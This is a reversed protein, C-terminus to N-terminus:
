IIQEETAFFRIRKDSPIRKSELESICGGFDSRYVSRKTGKDRQNVNDESKLEM